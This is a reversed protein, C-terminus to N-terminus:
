VLPATEESSTGGGMKADVFACVLALAPWTVQVWVVKAASVMLADCSPSDKATDYNNEWNMWSWTYLFVVCFVMAINWVKIGGRDAYLLFGIWIINMQRVLSKTTSEVFEGMGTYLCTWGAKPAIITELSWLIQIWVFLYFLVIAAKGWASNTADWAHRLYYLPNFSTTM